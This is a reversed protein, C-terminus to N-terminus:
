CLQTRDELFFSFSNEFPRALYLTHLILV